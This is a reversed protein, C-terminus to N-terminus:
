AKDVACAFEVAMSAILSFISRMNLFDTDLYDLISKLSQAGRYGRPTKKGPTVSRVAGRVTNRPNIRPLLGSPRTVTSFADWLKDVRSM